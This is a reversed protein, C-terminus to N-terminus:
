AMWRWEGQDTRGDSRRKKNENKASSGLGCVVCCVQPFFSEQLLVVHGVNEIVVGHAEDLEAVHGEEGCRKRQGRQQGHDVVEHLSPHVCVLYALSPANKQTRITFKSGYRGSFLLLVTKSPRGPPPPPPTSPYTCIDSRSSIPKRERGGAVGCRSKQFNPELAHGGGCAGYM